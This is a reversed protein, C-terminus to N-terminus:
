RKRLAFINVQQSVYVFKSQRYFRMVRQLHVNYGILPHAACAFM